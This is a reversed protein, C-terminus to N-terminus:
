ALALQGCASGSSRTRGGAAARRSGRGGGECPGPSHGDNSDRGACRRGFTFKFIRQAVGTTRRQLARGRSHHNEGRAGPGAEASGARRAGGTQRRTQGSCGGRGKQGEEGRRSEAQRRCRRSGDTQDTSLIRQTEAADSLHEVLPEFRGYQSKEYDNDMKIAEFPCVEVCIQCQMCVSIDIDFVKPRQQPKGKEDRDMVIYICQPPCETECIKCAICRLNDQTGDFVLFPFTRSNEPVKVREEPYQVTVLREKDFYSGIFNRATVAMGEFLGKGLLAM